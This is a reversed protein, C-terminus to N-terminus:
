TGPLARISSQSVRLRAVGVVVVVLEAHQEAQIALAARNSRMPDIIGVCRTLTQIQGVDLRCLFGHLAVVAAAAAALRISAAEDEVANCATVAFRGGARVSWRGGCVGVIGLRTSAGIAKELEDHGFAAALEVDDGIVVLELRGRAVVVGGAVAVAVVLLSTLEVTEISNICNWSSTQNM